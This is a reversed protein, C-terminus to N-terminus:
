NRELWLIINQILLECECLSGIDDGGGLRVGSIKCCITSVFFCSIAAALDRGARSSRLARTAAWSGGRLKKAATVLSGSPRTLMMASTLFAEGEAPVMQFPPPASKSGTAM